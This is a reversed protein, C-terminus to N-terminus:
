YFDEDQNDRMEIEDVEETGETTTGQTVLSEKESNAAESAVATASQQLQELM